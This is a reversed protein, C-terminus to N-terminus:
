ANSAKEAEILEARVRQGFADTITRLEDVSTTYSELLAPRTPSTYLAEAESFSQKAENAALLSKELSMLEKRLSKNGPAMALYIEAAQRTQDVHGQAMIVDAQLADWSGVNHAYDDEHSLPTKQLGKLLTMAASHMKNRSTKAVFGKNTFAAYLKSAAREVVNVDVVQSIPNSSTKAMDTMDVTACASSFLCGCLAAVHLFKLSNGM